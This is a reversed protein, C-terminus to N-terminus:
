EGKLSNFDFGLPYYKNECLTMGSWRNKCFTRSQTNNVISFYGIDKQKSTLRACVKKLGSFSVETPEEKTYLEYYLNKKPIGKCKMKASDGVYLEEVENIYEYMYNKPALNKERIIIGGKKIDNTLYGLKDPDDKRHKIHIFGKAYLKDFAPKKIHASDTDMYTFLDGKLTDDIELIYNLMIRKSYSLIYCGIHNPFKINEGKFGEKAEGKLILKEGYFDFETIIYKETFRYIDKLNNAITTNCNIPQQLFKGFLANLMTKAINRKVANEEITADEKM